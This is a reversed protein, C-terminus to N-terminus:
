DGGSALRILFVETQGVHRADTLRRAVLRLREDMSYVPPLEVRERLDRLAVESGNDALLIRASAPLTKPQEVATV